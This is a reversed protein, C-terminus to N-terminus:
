ADTKKQRQKKRIVARIIMVVIILFTLYMLMSKVITVASAFRCVSGSLSDAKLMMVTCINETYDSIFLFAPIIAWKTKKGELITMLVTFFVTYAVPYVFDLPLQVSLALNKGEGSLSAIFAKAAEYTYGFANMDFFRMGQTGAEIAPILKINMVAMIAVTIVGSVALVTYKKKM